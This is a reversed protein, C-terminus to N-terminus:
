RCGATACTAPDARAGPETERVGLAATPEDLIVVKAGFAAARAVAVAQRQGGSLTEVAQTMTRCRASGSTTRARQKARERMGKNDLMRFCALRPGRGASRADSSCNSAIDLAPSVALTQYVTEIGAPM